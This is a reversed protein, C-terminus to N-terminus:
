KSRRKSKPKQDDDDEDDDDPSPPEEDEEEDKDANKKTAVIDGIVLKLDDMQKKEEALQRLETLWHLGEKAYFKQLSMLRSKVLEMDLKGERGRDATLSGQPLMAPNWWKPDRPMRLRGAKMEKAIAYCWYRRCFNEQRLLRQGIWRQLKSNLLRNNAGRLSAIDWMLEPPLGISWATDRVLHGLLAIQNPHPAADILAKLSVGAPLQPINGGTMIEEYNFNETTPAGNADIGGRQGKKVQAIVSNTVNGGYSASGAATEMTLPIQNRVKIGYKIDRVIEGMDQLNNIAASLISVPRVHGVKKFHAYYLANAALITRSKTRDDPDILNYAEHRGFGNIRVGDRWRQGELDGNPQLIQHAEYIALRAAGSATETLVPLVDGDRFAAINLQLQGEYFGFKGSADFVEPIEQMDFAENALDNWETDLSNAMPYLYGILDASGSLLHGAFGINETIARTKRMMEIRTYSTIERSTNLEPWIIAGRMTSHTVADYGTGGGGYSGGHSSPGVVPSASEAQGRNGRRGRRNKSM